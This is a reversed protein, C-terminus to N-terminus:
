AHQKFISFQISQGAYINGGPGGIVPIDGSGSSRSAGQRHVRGVVSSRSSQKGAVARKAAQEFKRIIALEDELRTNVRMDRVMLSIDDIGDIRLRTLSEFHYTLKKVTPEGGRELMWTAVQIESHLSALNLQLQVETGVDVLAGLVVKCEWCVQPELSDCVFVADKLSKALHWM